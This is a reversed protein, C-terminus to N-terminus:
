RDLSGPLTLELGREKKGLGKIPDISAPAFAYQWEPGGKGARAEIMLYVEPDTTLVCALLVGDIM